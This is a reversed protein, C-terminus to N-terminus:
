LNMKQFKCADDRTTLSLSAMFRVTVKSTNNHMDPAAREAGVADTLGSEAHGCGM